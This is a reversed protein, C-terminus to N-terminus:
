NIDKFGTYEIQNLTSRRYAPVRGGGGGDNGKSGGGNGSSSNEIAGGGKEDEGGDKDDSKSSGMRGAILGGIFAGAGGGSLAAGGGLGSAISPMQYILIGLAGEVVILGFADAIANTADQNTEFHSVYAGVIVLTMTIAVALGIIMFTYNMIKGMWADFFKATPPFALAAVFMPGIGLMFALAVKAMICFGLIVLIMIASGLLVVVGAIMDLWGGWPLLTMGHGVIVLGLESVKEDFDDILGFISTASSGGIVSEGSATPAVISVFWNQFDNVTEVIQTQYIGGGLAIALIISIKTLNKLFVMIPDSVENRMVAMGYTTAWITMGVVVLPAIGASVAISTKAVFTALASDISGSVFTAIGPM